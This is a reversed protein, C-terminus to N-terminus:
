DNYVEEWDIDSQIREVKQPSIDHEEAIKFRDPAGNDLCTTILADKIEEENSNNATESTKESNSTRVHRKPVRIKELVRNYTDIEELRGNVLSYVGNRQLTRASPTEGLHDRIEYFRELEDGLRINKNPRLGAVRAAETYSGFQDEFFEFPASYGSDELLDGFQEDERLSSQAPPRGNESRELM